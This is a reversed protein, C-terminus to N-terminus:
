SNITKNRNYPKSKGYKKTIMFAKNEHIIYKVRSRYCTYDKSLLYLSQLLKYNKNKKNYPKIICFSNTPTYIGIKM